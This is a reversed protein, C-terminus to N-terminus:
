NKPRMAVDDAVDSQIRAGMLGTLARSLAQHADALKRVLFTKTRAERLERKLRQSRPAVGDTSALLVAFFLSLLAPFVSVIARLYVEPGGSRSLVASLDSFARQVVIDRANPSGNPLGERIAAIAGAARALANEYERTVMGADRGFMAFAAVKPELRHVLEETRGIDETASLGPQVPEVTPVSLLSSYANRLSTARLLYDTAIPGCVAVGTQDRGNCADIRSRDLAQLHGSFARTIGQDVSALERRVAASRESIGRVATEGHASLTLSFFSFFSALLVLTIGILGIVGWSLRPVAYSFSLYFGTIALSVILAIGMAVLEAGFLANPPLLSTSLLGGAIMSYEYVSSGALGSYAIRRVLWLRWDSDPLTQNTTPFVAQDM